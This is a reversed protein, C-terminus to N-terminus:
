PANEQGLVSKQSPIKFAMSFLVSCPFVAALRLNITEVPVGVHAWINDLGLSWAALRALRDGNGASCVQRM